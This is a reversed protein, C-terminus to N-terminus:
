RMGDAIVQWQDTAQDIVTQQINSRDHYNPCLTSMNFEDQGASTWLWHQSHIKISHRASISIDNKAYHPEDSSFVIKADNFIDSNSWIFLQVNKYLSHAKADDCVLTVFENV